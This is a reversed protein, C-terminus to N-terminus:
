SGAGWAGELWEPQVPFTRRLLDDVKAIDVTGGKHIRLRTLDRDRSYGFDQEAFQLLFKCYYLLYKVNHRIRVEDGPRRFLQNTAM